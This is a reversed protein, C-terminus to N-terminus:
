PERVAVDVPIEKGSKFRLALKFADGVKLEKKMGEAMLHTSAPKLTVTSNAPIVLGDKLESMSMLGNDNKTEHLTISGAVDGAVSLLTDPASGKNDITMYVAIAAPTANGMNMDSMGGITPRAWADKVSIDSTGTQAAPAACAALFLVTVASAFIVKLNVM